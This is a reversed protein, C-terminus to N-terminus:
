NALVFMIEDTMKPKTDFCKRQVQTCVYILDNGWQQRM